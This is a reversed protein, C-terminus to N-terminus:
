DMRTWVQMENETRNAWMFYPIYKLKTENKIKDKRVHYLEPGDESVEQRYGSLIIMKAPVESITIDTIVARTENKVSLMHLNKGNDAEEMCYVVPGRTVAIKGIDERVRKSAEMLKVEMPFNLKIVDEESWNKKIYIYGDRESKEDNDEV